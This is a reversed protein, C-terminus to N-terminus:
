QRMSLLEKNQVQLAGIWIPDLGVSQNGQADGCSSPMDAEPKRPDFAQYDSHM